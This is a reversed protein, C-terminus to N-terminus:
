SAHTEQPMVKELPQDFVPRGHARIADNQLGSHWSSPFCSFWSALFHLRLNHQNTNSPNITPGTKRQDGGPQLLEGNASMCRCIIHIGMALVIARFVRIVDSLRRTHVPVTLYGYKESCTSASWAYSTSCLIVFLIALGLTTNAVIDTEENTETVNRRM